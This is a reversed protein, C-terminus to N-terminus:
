PTFFRPQGDGPVKSDLHIWPGSIKEMRMEWSDLMPLIKARMISCGEIGDFGTAHFDVASWIGQCQHASYRAGKVLSNYAPPRYWCHVAIPYGLYVRVRDMRKAFTLLQRKVRYDLGDTDVALRRWQPLWILEGVTFHDSAKAKPDKWDIEM